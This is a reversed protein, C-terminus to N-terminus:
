MRFGADTRRLPYLPRTGGSLISNPDHALLNGRSGQAFRGVRVARWSTQRKDIADAVEHLPDLFQKWREEKLQHEIPYVNFSPKEDSRVYWDIARM